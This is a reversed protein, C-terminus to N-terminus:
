HAHSVYYRDGDSGAVKKDGGADLTLLDSPLITEGLREAAELEVMDGADSDGGGGDGDSEDDSM